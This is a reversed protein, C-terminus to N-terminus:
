SCKVGGAVPRERLGGRDLGYSERRRRQHRVCAERLRDWGTYRRNDESAAEIKRESRYLGELDDIGCCHVQDVSQVAPEGGSPNCKWQKTCAVLKDPFPYTLM